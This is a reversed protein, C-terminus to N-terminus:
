HSGALAASGMEWTQRARVLSCAQARRSQSGVGLKPHRATHWPTSLLAGLIPLAGRLGYGDLVASLPTRGQYNQNRPGLGNVDVGECILRQVLQVRVEMDCSAFCAVYLACNGRNEAATACLGADLMRLALWPWHRCADEFNSSGYFALDINVAWHRPWEPLVKWRELAELARPEDRYRLVDGFEKTLPHKLWKSIDEPCRIAVWVGDVKEFVEVEVRPSDSM